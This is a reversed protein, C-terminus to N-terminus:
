ECKQKYLNIRDQLTAPQGALANGLAAVAGGILRGQQEAQAYLPGLSPNMLNGQQVQPSTNQQVQQQRIESLIQEKLIQCEITQSAVPLSCLTLSVLLLKNM